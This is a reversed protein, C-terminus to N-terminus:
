RLYVAGHSTTGALVEAAFINGRARKKPEPAKWGAAKVINGTAIEVFTHVFTQSDNEIAVKVFRSGRSAVFYTGVALNPYMQAMEHNKRDQLAAIYSDLAHEFKARDTM